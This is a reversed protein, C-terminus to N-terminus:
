CEGSVGYKGNMESLCFSAFLKLLSDKQFTLHAARMGKDLEQKVIDRQKSHDLQKISARKWAKLHLSRLLMIISDSRDFNSCEKDWTATKIRSFTSIFVTILFFIFGCKSVDNPSTQQKNTKRTIEQLTTEWQIEMPFNKKLKNLLIPLHPTNM